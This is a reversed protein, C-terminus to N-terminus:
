RIGFVHTVHPTDILTHPVLAHYAWVHVWANGTRLTLTTKVMGPPFYTFLLFVISLVADGPSTFVTWADWLHMAAYMLGGLIITTAASGTLRLFRPVLVCYVFVMAPLVAGALFLVFALPVGLLLQPGNLDVIAPKLAAFQVASEVLLVAAILKADARRDNSTLNLDTASYRRRFYMLPVVAYVVLNYCAWTIAEAPAVHEHTGFVSGALHFGFPHWGLARGLVYGGLLGGAGYALLLLTERLALARDAPARSAIGPVARRRTLVYVLAIILGAELARGNFDALHELPSRGSAEPWDFPLTRGAAVLVIAGALLWGLALVVLPRLPLTASRRPPGRRRASSTSASSRGISASRRASFSTQSANV